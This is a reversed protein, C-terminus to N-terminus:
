RNVLANRFMATYDSIRPLESNAHCRMLELSAAATAVVSPTPVPLAQVSATVATSM